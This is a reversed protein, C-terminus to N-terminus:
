IDALKTIKVTLTFTVPNRGLSGVFITYDGSEEIGVEYSGGSQERLLVMEGYTGVTEVKIGVTSAPTLNLVLKQGSRARVVYTIGHGGTTGKIVTSNRGKAFQIRKPTQAEAQAGCIAILAILVVSLNVIRKM